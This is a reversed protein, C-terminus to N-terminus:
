SGRLRPSDLHGECVGERIVDCCLRVESQLLRLVRGSERCKRAQKAVQRGEGLLPGTKSRAGRYLGGPVGYVQRAEPTRGSTTVSQLRGLARPKARPRAAQWARPRPPGVRWLAAPAAQLGGRRLTGAQPKRAGLNGHLYVAGRVVNENTMRDTKPSGTPPPRSSTSPLSPCVGM